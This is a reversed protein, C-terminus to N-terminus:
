SPTATKRRKRSSRSPRLVERRLKRKCPPRATLDDFRALPDIDGKAYAAALKKMLQEEYADLPAQEEPDGTREAIKSCNPM